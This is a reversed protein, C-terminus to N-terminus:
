NHKSAWAQGPRWKAFNWANLPTQPSERRIKVGSFSSFGQCSKWVVVVYGRFWHCRCLIVMFNGRIGTLVNTKAIHRGPWEPGQQPLDSKAGPGGGLPWPLHHPATAWGLAARMGGLYLYLYLYLYICFFYTCSYIFLYMYIYINM